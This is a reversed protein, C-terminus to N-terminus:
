AKGLVRLDEITDIDTVVEISNTEVVVTDDAYKGTVHKLGMTKESISFIDKFLENSFLIPHGRKGKYAAVVIPAKTELYKEIVKNFISPAVFAVDAPHIIVASAWRYVVRLGKKVSESMGIRYNPNYVIVVDLDSIQQSVKEADHGVVVVVEEAKSKLASEVIHRILPKGDVIYLLKNGPFRTSLGAALIVIPIGDLSGLGM